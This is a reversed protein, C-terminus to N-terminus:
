QGHVAVLYAMYLRGVGGSRYVILYLTWTIGAGDHLLIRGDREVLRSMGGDDM